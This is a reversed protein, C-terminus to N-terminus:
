ESMKKTQLELKIFCRGRIGGSRLKKSFIKDVPGSVRAESLVQNTENKEITYVTYVGSIMSSNKIPPMRRGTNIRSLELSVSRMDVSQRPKDVSKFAVM